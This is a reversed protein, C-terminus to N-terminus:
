AAAAAARRPPTFNLLFEILLRAGFGTAGKSRWADDADIQATGAIDLHTWPVGAVFEELFLAATIAGADEGGVNKLDAMGSDLEKRHRRALPLQWVHEDTRKQETSLVLGDAMVLRGEADTNLVEVTTGGRIMRPPEIRGANVGLTRRKSLARKQAQREASPVSGPGRAREITRAAILVHELRGALQTAWVAM